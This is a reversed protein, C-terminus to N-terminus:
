FNLINLNKTSFTNCDFNARFYILKKKQWAIFLYHFISLDVSLVTLYKLSKTKISEVYCFCNNFVLLYLIDTWQKNQSYFLRSM